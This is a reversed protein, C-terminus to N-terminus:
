NVTRGFVGVAMGTTTPAQTLSVQLGYPLYIGGFAQIASNGNATINAQRYFQTWTVGDPSFYFRLGLVATDNNIMAVSDLLFPVAIIQTNPNNTPVNPNFALLSSPSSLSM